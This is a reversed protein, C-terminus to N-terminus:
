VLEINECWVWFPELSGQGDAKRIRLLREEFDVGVLIHHQWVKKGYIIRTSKSFGTEDFTKVTM